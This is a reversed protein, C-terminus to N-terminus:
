PTPELRPPADALFATLDDRAAALRPDDTARYCRLRVTLISEEWPMAPEFPALAPRCRHDFDAVQAIELRLRLRLEEFRLAALPAALAAFLRGSTDPAAQAIESALLLARRLMPRHSWPETRAAELASVLASAAAEPEAHRLQYRARAAQASFADGADTLRQAADLAQADGTEALCEARLLRDIPHEIHQAQTQWLAAAAALEGRVYANRAEVRLDLARDGSPPYRSIIGWRANRASRADALARRDLQGGHTQPLHEGRTAALRALRDVSMELKHGLGRVVRRALRPHDDRELRGGEARRVATAFAPGAVFGSYFGAVGKVGLQNALAQTWPPKALRTGLRGLDHVLRQRSAVLLLDDPGVQWCEVAAFVSGLTALVTRVAAADLHALPLAQLFIGGAELRARAAQYFARSFLSAGATLETLPSRSLVLDYHARTTQLLARGDSALLHVKPNNPADRNVTRARLAFAVAAIERVSVDVRELSPVAALAGASAGSGLGIVLARKANPHLAAGILGGIVAAPADRIVGAVPVGDMRLSMEDLAEIALSSERGDAQWRTARRMTQRLNRIANPSDFSSPMDGTAIPTHRWLATPHGASGLMLAAAASALSLARRLRAGARAGALLDRASYALAMTALLVISARWTGLAGLHPLSFVASALAGALAGLALGALARAGGPEAADSAAGLTRAMWVGAVVSAPLVLLAIILAWSAVLLWFSVDGLPRTLMALVALPDGLARPAAIALAALACGLGWRGGAEELRRRLAADLAGGLAIGGFGVALLLGFAEDSRGILPLLMRQWVPALLLSLFGITAPAVIDPAIIDSAVIDWARIGSARIGSARAGDPREDARRGRARDAAPSTRRRAIWAAIGAILLELGAAALVSARIGIAAFAGFTAVLTGCLAGLAACALLRGTSRGSHAGSTAAHMLHPMSAGKLVAAAGFALALLVSRVFFVRLSGPLAGGALLPVQGAGWVALWPSLAALLAAGAAPRAFSALGPARSRMRWVHGLSGAAVGTAFVALVSLSVARANGFGQAALRLWAVLEVLTCLASAFLLGAAAGQGTTGTTGTTRVNM